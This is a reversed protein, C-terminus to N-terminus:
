DKLVDSSFMMMHSCHNCQLLAVHYFNNSLENSDNLQPLAIEGSQYGSNKGCVPCDVGGPVKKNLFNQFKQQENQDLSM